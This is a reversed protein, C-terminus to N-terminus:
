QFIGDAWEAHNPKRKHEPPPMMYKKGYHRILFSHYDQPAMIKYGNVEIRIGEGFWGKPFKWPICYIWGNSEYYCDTDQESYLVRVKEYLWFLVKLPIIKGICNLTRIQKQRKATETKYENYDIVARHGMALGYIGQILLVHRQHKKEDNCAHDLVYIDMPMHGDLEKHIKKGAKKYVNVPISEKIYVLRTMFDLFVHKGIQDYDVFLFDGSSWYEKAIQKLKEFDKRPMAVDVDDDWPILKGERVAGLLSGCILYYRLNHKTCVRDFETLLRILIKHAKKLYEDQEMFIM